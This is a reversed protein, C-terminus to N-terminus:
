YHACHRTGGGNMVKDMFRTYKEVHYTWALKLDDYNGGCVANAYREYSSIRTEITELRSKNTKASTCKNLPIFELLYKRLTESSIKENTYDEESPSTPDSRAIPKIVNMYIYMNIIKLPPGM